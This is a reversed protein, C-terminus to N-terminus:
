KRERILIRASNLVVAITTANHILASLFPNIKGMAGLLMAVTNISITAVFNQRIINMTRQGQYLVEPVMLVDDSNITIDAAEMAVDTRSGGMAVGVDAFALAPADNIGDGIMMVQSSRQMKGVLLAKEEPLVEAMYSDLGLKNATDKAVDKSDGTIMVLEDIGMRRLKNMAKRMKPRILDSIALVGLLKQDRSVFVVNYGQHQYKEILKNLPQCDVQHEEMFQASGVLIIGGNVEKNSPINAKVGRAVIIETSIHQPIEWDNDRVKSMIATALPHTSHYEASAALLLLEKETVGDVTGTSVIIPRGETITGTKDLVVTDINALAEIYNGGKILVGRSAAQGIAASIATSTSLKLGCSYDIFLMNLVRQWDKTLGYVLGATIFSVPVLLGAIRDAFNQVPAKRSHAEEVLHVIRALATKDGVKEVSIKLSGSKLVTGAYVADGTTKEVPMYEGTISSQDVAARGQTVRGDVSIKEGLHVRVKDGPKIENVPVKIEHGEETVKWALPQDLKLMNSIHNRTKEATYHTLLEAMNSLAIITLSSEPKRGIISAAIATTTLTDANPRMEKVLSTLGSQIFSKAVFLVLASRAWYLNNFAVPSIRKLIELGLLSVASFALNNIHSDLEAQLETKNSQYFSKKIYHLQNLLDRPPLAPSYGVSLKGTSDIYSSVVGNISRVRAEFVAKQRSSLNTNLQVTMKLYKM